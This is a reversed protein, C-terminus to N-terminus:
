GNGKFCDDNFYVCMREISNVIHVNFKKAFRVFPNFTIIYNLCNEKLAKLWNEKGEVVNEMRYIKQQREM